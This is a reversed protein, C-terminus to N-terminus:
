WSAAVSCAAMVTFPTTVELLIGNVLAVPVAGPGFTAALTPLTVDMSTVGCM